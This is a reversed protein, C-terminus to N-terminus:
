CVPRMSFIKVKKEHLVSTLRFVAKPVNNLLTAVNESSSQSSLMM